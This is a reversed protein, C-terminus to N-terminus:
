TGSDELCPSDDAVGEVFLAAFEDPLALALEWSGGGFGETGWTM